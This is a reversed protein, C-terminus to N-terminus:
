KMLRYNEHKWFYKNDGEKVKRICAQINKNAKYFKGENESLDNVHYWIHKSIKFFLLMTFAKDISVSQNIVWLLKRREVYIIYGAM